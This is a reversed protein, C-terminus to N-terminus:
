NNRKPLDLPFGEENQLVLFESSKTLFTSNKQDDTETRHRNQDIATTPLRSIADAVINKEGSIHRIDPGFEELIMRWRMVRQSQSITAAHVLNKHDSYVIIRYGFLINHFEKICEVSSDLSTRYSKQASNLKRSFLAIPKGEQSIVAGLQYDSADTHIDFHTNRYPYVLLTEKWIM